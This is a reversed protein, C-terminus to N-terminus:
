LENSGGLSKGKTPDSRMREVFSKPNETSLKKSEHERSEELSQEIKELIIKKAPNEQSKKIEKALEGKVDFENTEAQQLFKLGEDPSGKQFLLVGLKYQYEGFGANAAIRFQEEDRDLEGAKQYYEGLTGHSQLNGCGASKEACEKKLVELNKPLEM